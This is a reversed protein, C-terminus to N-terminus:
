TRPIGAAINSLSGQKNITLSGVKSQPLPRHRVIALAQCSSWVCRALPLLPFAAHTAVVADLEGTVFHQQLPTSDAMPSQAARQECRSSAPDQEASAPAHPEAPQTAQQRGTGAQHQVSSLPGTQGTSASLLEQRLIDLQPLRCQLRLTTCM